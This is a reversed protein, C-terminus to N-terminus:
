EGDPLLVVAKRKGNTIQLDRNAIYFKKVTSELDGMYEALRADDWGARKKETAFTRRLIHLGSADEKSLGANRYIKNIQHEMDTVSMPKGTRTICIYDDHQTYNSFEYIKELVDIASRTLQINRSKQNKTSEETYEYELKGKSADIKGKKRVRVRGKDITLIGNKRDYDKWKLALLEGIRMGTEYLLVGHPGHPYRFKNIMKCMRLAEEKFSRVQDNLLIKVDMDDAGRAGIKEINNKLSTLISDM